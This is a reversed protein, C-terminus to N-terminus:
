NFTQLDEGVVVPGSYWKKIETLDNPDAGVLHSLVLMKVKADRALQGVQTPSLHEEVMHFRGAEPVAKLVSPSVMECVLIDAGEAFKALGPDQGTDGTFVVVKHPTQFRYAYSKNPSATSGAKFHFHANERATVKVNDDSFVLGPQVDRAKFMAAADPVSQGGQEARIEWNIRLAAVVAAVFDATRPPGIIELPHQRSSYIAMMGPLDATHDNHQHTIFVESISPLPVNAEALRRTVGIGADILYRKGRITLLSSEGARRVTLGPGGQTGILTLVTSDVVPTPPPPTSALQARAAPGALGASVIALALAVGLRARAPNPGEHRTVTDTM